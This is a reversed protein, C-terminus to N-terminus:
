GGGQLATVDDGLELTTPVMTDFTLRRVLRYKQVETTRSTRQSPALSLILLSCTLLGEQDM